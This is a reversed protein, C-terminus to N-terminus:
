YIGANDAADIGEIKIIKWGGFTSKKLIVTINDPTDDIGLLTQPIGARTGRAKVDVNAYALQEGNEDEGLSVSVNGYSGDVSDFKEFTNEIINKLVPYSAGYEDKYHLSFQETVGELDKNRSSDIIENFVAEIESTEDGGTYIFYILLVGLILIPIIYKVIHLTSGFGFNNM